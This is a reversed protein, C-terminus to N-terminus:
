RIRPDLSQWMGPEPIMTYTYLAQNTTYSFPHESVAHKPEPYHQELCTVLSYSSRSSAVDLIYHM